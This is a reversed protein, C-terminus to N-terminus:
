PMRNPAVMTPISYCFCSNYDLNKEEQEVIVREFEAREM